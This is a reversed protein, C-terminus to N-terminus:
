TGDTAGTCLVQTPLYCYHDPQCAPLITAPWQDSAPPGRTRREDKDSAGKGGPWTRRRSEVRTGGNGDLGHGTGMDLDLDM